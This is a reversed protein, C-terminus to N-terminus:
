LARTLRLSRGKGGAEDFGIADYVHRARHNSRAVSLWVDTIGISRAHEFTAELLATGVGADQYDDDVFVGLEHDGADDPVLAAHGVVAGDHVAVVSVHDLLVALWETIRSESAPPLGQARQEPPFEDYMDVLSGYQEPRYREFAVVRDADDVIRDLRPDAATTPGTPESSM